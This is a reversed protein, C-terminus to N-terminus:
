HQQLLNIVSKLSRCMQWIVFNPYYPSRSSSICKMQFQDRYCVKGNLSDACPDSHYELSDKGKSWKDNQIDYIFTSKVIAENTDSVNNQGGVVYVKDAM